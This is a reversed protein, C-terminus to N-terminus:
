EDAADSTYLLCSTFDLFSMRRCVTRSLSPLESGLPEGSAGGDGDPGCMESDVPFRIFSVWTLKRELRTARCACVIERVSTAKRWPERTIRSDWRPLSAELGLVPWGALGPKTFKM